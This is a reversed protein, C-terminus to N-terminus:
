RFLLLVAEVISWGLAIGGGLFFLASMIQLMRGAAPVVKALTEKSAYRNKAYIAVFEEM